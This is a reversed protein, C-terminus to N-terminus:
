QLRQANEFEKDSRLKAGLGKADAVFEIRAARTSDSFASLALLAPTFVTADKPMTDVGLYGQYYSTLLPQRMTKDIQLDLMLRQVLASNKQKVENIPMAPADKPEKPAIIVETIESVVREVAQAINEGSGKNGVEFEPVDSDLRQVATEVESKIEGVAFESNPEPATDTHDFEEPIYVGALAAAFALRLSGATSCKGLMVHGKNAWFYNAAGNHLGVFEDWFATFEFPQDCGKRWVYTTASLLKTGTETQVEQFTTKIGNLQGTKDAAKLLGHVGDLIILRHEGAERDWQRRCYVEGLLPDMDRSETVYLFYQFDEMSAGEPMKRKWILRLQEPTWKSTFSAATEIEQPTLDRQKKPQKQEQPM